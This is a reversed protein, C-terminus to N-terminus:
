YLTKKSMLMNRLAMDRYTDLAPPKVGTVKAAADDWKTLQVKQQFLPDMEFDRMDGPSLPNDRLTIFMIVAGDGYNRYTPDIASLYRKAKFNSEVLESTKNSFGLERVNFDDSEYRDVAMFSLLLGALITEEDAGERKALYAVRLAHDLQTMNEGIHEQKGSNELVEFVKSMRQEPTMISTSTSM